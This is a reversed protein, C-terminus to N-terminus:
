SDGVTQCYKDYAIIYLSHLKHLQLDFRADDHGDEHNFSVVDPIRIFEDSSAAYYHEINDALHTVFSGAEGHPPRLRWGDLRQGTQSARDSVYLTNGISEWGKLNPPTPEDLVPQHTATDPRRLRVTHLRNSGIPDPVVYGSITCILSEPYMQKFVSPAAEQLRGESSERKIKDLIQDVLSQIESVKQWEGNRFFDDFATDIPLLGDQHKRLWHTIEDFGSIYGQTALFSLREDPIDYKERFDIKKLSLGDLLGAFLDKAWNLKEGGWERNLWPGLTMTLRGNDLSWGIGCPGILMNSLFEDDSQPFMSETNAQEVSVTQVDISDYARNLLDGMAVGSEASSHNDALYRLVGRRLFEVARRQEEDEADNREGVEGANQHAQLFNQLITRVEDLIRQATNHQSFEEPFKDNMKNWEETTATLVISAPSSYIHSHESLWATKTTLPFCSDYEDELVVYVKTQQTIPLNEKQLTKGGRRRSSKEGNDKLRKLAISFDTLTVLQDVFKITNATFQKRSDLLQEFEESWIVEDSKYNEFGIAALDRWYHDHSAEDILNLFQHQALVLAELSHAFLANPGQNLEEDKMIISEILERLLISNERRGPVYSFFHNFAEIEELPFEDDTIFQHDLRHLLNVAQQAQVPNQQFYPANKLLITDPLLAMKNFLAHRFVMSSLRGPALNWEAAATNRQPQTAYNSPVRFMKRLEESPSDPLCGVYAKNEELYSMISNANELARLEAATFKECVIRIRRQGSRPSGYDGLYLFMFHPHIEMHAFRLSRLYRLYNRKSPQQILNEAIVSPYSSIRLLLAFKGETVARTWHAKDDASRNLNAEARCDTNLLDQALTDDLHNKNRQPNLKGWELEFTPEPVVIYRDNAGPGSRLNTPIQADFVNFFHQSELKLPVGVHPIKNVWSLVTERVLDATLPPIKCTLGSFEEAYLPTNEVAITSHSLISTNNIDQIINDAEQDVFIHTPHM